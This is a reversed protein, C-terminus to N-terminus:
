FCHRHKRTFAVLQSVWYKDWEPPFWPKSTWLEIIRLHWWERFRPRSLCLLLTVNSGPAVLGWHWTVNRNIERIRRPAPGQSYGSPGSGIAGRFRIYLPALARSLRVMGSRFEMGASMPHHLSPDVHPVWFYILFIAQCSLVSSWQYWQSREGFVDKIYRLFLDRQWPYFNGNRTGSRPVWNHSTVYGNETLQGPWYGVIGLHTPGVVGLKKTSLQYSGGINGNKRAEVLWLLTYSGHLEGAFKLQAGHPVMPAM